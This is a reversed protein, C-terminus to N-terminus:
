IQDFDKVRENNIKNKLNDILRNSYIEFLKVNDQYDAYNISKDEAYIKNKVPLKSKIKNILHDFLSTDKCHKREKRAKKFNYTLIAIIFSVMCIVFVVNYFTIIIAGMTFNTDLMEKYNFHRLLIKFNTAMSKVFTGFGNTKEYYFLFMLQTLALWLILAISLFAVLDKICREIAKMLFSLKMNYRLLKILKITAFFTSFALLTGLATNWAVMTSLNVYTIGNQSMNNLLSNLAYLKYLFMPLSVWSCIFMPWDLYISFQRIYKKGLRKIAKLEKLMLAGLIGLFVSILVTAIIQRTTDWLNMTVINVTSIITGSPLIEFVFTCFAFLNINPNFVTFDIIIARTRQDIWNMEQLSLLNNQVTQLDGIMKYVYGGPLYTSFDALYVSDNLYKSKTYNFASAVDNSITQNSESTNNTDNTDNNINLSFPLWFSTYNNQDETFYSYYDYCSKNYGVLSNLKKNSLFNDLDTWGSHLLGFKDTCLDIITFFILFNEIFKYLFILFIVIKLEKKNLLVIDSFQQRFIM